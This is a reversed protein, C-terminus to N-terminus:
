PQQGEQVKGRNAICKKFYENEERVRSKASGPPTPPYAKIAMERCKKALETSPPVPTPVASSIPIFVAVTIMALGLFLNIPYQV